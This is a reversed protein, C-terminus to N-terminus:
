VAEVFNNKINFQRVTDKPVFPPKPERGYARLQRQRIRYDHYSNWDGNEEVCRLRLMGEVGEQTWRQGSRECRDKVIHRCVGEIMGTAIPWGKQLYQDYRMSDLNNDLYRASTEIPVYGSPQDTQDAWGFLEDVIAPADGKLMRLCASRVWQRGRENKAGFHADAAKWLYGMAHLLDLIPVYGPFAAAFQERLAREGDILLVRDSIPANKIQNVFTQTQAIAAQKGQMTAWVRKFSHADAGPDYTKKDFLSEVVQEPSRVLPAYTAVSTVTAMKKKGERKPGDKEKGPQSDSSDVESAQASAAVMPVGKCDAQVVVITEAPAVIPEPTQKYYEEADQSDSLILDQIGRTSKGVPFYSSLLAAAEEYSMSVALQELLIRVFDSPGTPPLNLASDLEYHGKGHGPAWYYSREFPVSGFITQLQGSREARYPLRSGDLAVASQVCHLQAQVKLFMMMALNGIEILHGLVSREVELLDKAADKSQVMEVLRDLKEHAQAVIHEPNATM